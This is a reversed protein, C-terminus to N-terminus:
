KEGKKRGVLMVQDWYIENKKKSGKVYLPGTVKVSVWVSWFNANEIGDAVRHFNALNCRTHWYFGWLFTHTGLDFQGVNYWHYKEDQPVKEDFHWHLRRKTKSDFLGFDLPTFNKVATQNMGHMTDKKAKTVLAKGGAAEPDDQFAKSSSTNAWSLYPWGLMIVERDRFDEPVELKVDVFAFTDGALRDLVQTRMWKPLKAENLRRLRESKYFDALKQRKGIKFRNKLIVFVPALMEQEVHKRYISGPSTLKQAETLYGWVKKMFKEDCYPREREYAHMHSPENKVATRVLTFFEMMPKAAPGYFGRVFERILLEPDQRVDKLLQYAVYNQLFAFNQSYQRDGDGSFEAFYGRSGKSHFYRINGIIGDICTEVRLPNFYNGGMNWYEYVTLPIKRNLWASYEALQGRNFKSTIPRYCDNITYLNTWSISINKRPRVFKPAKKTSVYASSHIMLDPYKKELREAVKNLFSIWLGSESGERQTIKKCEPCLCIYNSSDMQTIIYSLPWKEKPFMSRDKQIYKDLSEWVMDAVKPNSVCLNGGQWNHHSSTGRFRKGKADMSFLEPNTKFYKNPDLYRYLTHSPYFQTSTTPWYAYDGYNMSSRIRKRFQITKKLVEKGRSRAKPFDDYLERSNYSPKDQIFIDGLVLKKQKPIVTTDWAFWRCNFKKELLEYVAYLTGRPIGGTLVINKGYNKIFWEERNMKKVDVGQKRSFLTDGVYFAPKGSSSWKEEPVLTFVAGTIEKLHDALEEAAEKERATFVISYDTKGEAALLNEACYSVGSCCVSLIFFLIKKM